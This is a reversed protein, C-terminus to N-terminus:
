GAGTEVEGGNQGLLRARWGKCVEEFGGVVEGCVKAADRERLKRDWDGMELWRVGEEAEELGRKMTVVTERAM